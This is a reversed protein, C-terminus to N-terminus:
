EAAEAEDKSAMNERDAAKTKKVPTSEEVTVSESANQTADQTTTSQTSMDQPEVVNKWRDIHSLRRVLYPHNSLTQALHNMPREATYQLWQRAVDNMSEAVDPGVHVKILASKVLESDSLYMLALRDATLEARRQWFGAIWSGAVSIVPIMLFPALYVNADTHHYKIHAMEHVVIVKLEDKTLYRISGSQLVITYPRAFGFAYANMVPNQTVFIEVRPMELDASVENAWDRLWAYDSYEVQLSNGLMQQRTMRVLFMGIGLMIGLMVVMVVIAVLVGIIGESFSLETRRGFNDISMQRLTTFIFYISSILCFVTVTIALVVNDSTSRARAVAVQGRTQPQSSQQYQQYQQYPQQNM